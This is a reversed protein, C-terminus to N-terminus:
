RQAPLLFFVVIAISGMLLLAILPKGGFVRFPAKKNEIYRGKWVMLAPLFGYLIAVFVGAYGLALLFGAPFFLAFLLPPTFMLALLALKGGVTKKIRLGDALFNYLSLAVGFFSTVIAFFSFIGVVTAISISSEKQSLATTLGAVPYPSDRLALLGGAGELPLIGIILFEWVLYFALPILSGWFLAIKLKSVDNRLYSRLSPVIIHSTFSLAIVPIAPIIDQPTGESLQHWKIHPAGFAILVLFTGILGFMCLRNILDVFRTEFVVICGFIILFVFLGVTSPISIQTLEDIWSAILSGGGSLYAAAVAYLLLLFSVWAVIGGPRGLREKAMSILDGEEKSCMLTAELLFFLSLLMFLFCSVFVLSATWFGLSGTAMPLGLMGAGIATGGVILTSGFTRNYHWKM